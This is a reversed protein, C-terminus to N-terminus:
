SLVEAKTPRKYFGFTEDDRSAEVTANFRVHDGREVSDISRPVTGWVKFGRDDAVLMKLSGGYDSDQWKITLVKGEVTIKGEVVPQAEAQEAARETARRETRAMDRMIARVFKDSTTGYRNISHVFSHRMGDYGYDNETEVMYRAWEFAVQRDQDVAFWEARINVLRRRARNLEAAKRLQHFDASALDFRNDLCQEGVKILDGTPAHRLVAVYRINQGCHFCGGASHNEGFTEGTREIYEILQRRDGEEPHADYSLVYEYDETVLAAPRHVDTRTTM